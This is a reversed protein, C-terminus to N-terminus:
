FLSNFQELVVSNPLQMLPLEFLEEPTFVDDVLILDKGAIWWCPNSYANSRSAPRLRLDDRFMTIDLTGVPVETDIASLFRAM